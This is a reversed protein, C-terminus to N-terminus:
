GARAPYGAASIAAAIEQAPLSSVGELKGSKLDITVTAAPDRRQVVRKVANVCGDCSMGSITLAIPKKAESM